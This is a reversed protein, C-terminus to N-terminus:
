LTSRPNFDSRLAAKTQHYSEEIIHPGRDLRFPGSAPINKLQIVRIDKNKLNRFRSYDWPFAPSLQHCLVREDDKMRLLSLHDHVGGDVLWHSNWRVPHFFLPVRCSAALPSCLPGSDIVVTKMKKIDFCSIQLPYSLDSFNKPFHNELLRILKEGKLYGFGLAPDWFDRRQIQLLIDKFEAATMSSAVAAAALAGASTGRLIKYKLPYEELAQLFGAHSFFGFLGSSLSISIPKESLWTAYNM